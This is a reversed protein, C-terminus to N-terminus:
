CNLTETIGAWGDWGSMYCIFEVHLKTHEDVEDILKM